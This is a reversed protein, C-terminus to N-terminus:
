KAKCARDILVKILGVAPKDRYQHFTDIIQQPGPAGKPFYWNLICESKANNKEQTSALYMAMEVVGSLYGHRQDSSMKDLVDAATIAWAPVAALVFATALAAILRINASVPKRVSRTTVM